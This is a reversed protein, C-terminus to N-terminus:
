QWKLSEFIVENNTFPDLIMEVEDLKYHLPFGVTSDKATSELIYYPKNDIWLAKTQALRRDDLAVVVFIHKPVLVFYAKIDLANLLSILLNSKDDCDGERLELTRTPSHAQFHNTQYPISTVADLLRQTKCLNSECGQTLKSARERMQSAQSVRNTYIGDDTSIQRKQVIIFAQITIYVFGIAFIAIIVLSFNKAKEDKMM